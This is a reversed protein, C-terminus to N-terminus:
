APFRIKFATNEGSEVVLKGGLQRTLLQVLRLGLSEVHQIDLGPPLPTGTNCVCLEYEDGDRKMCISVEGGADASFAHKFANTVLENVILGCPIATDIDLAIDEVRDKMTIRNMSYTQQLFQSIHRFFEAVHIHALDQSQYLQQHLRAMFQIRTKSERLATRADENKITASQLDMLSAIVQMNNKVRHHVERLLIDKEALSRKLAEEARKSESIDSIVARCVPTGDVDKAATAEVRAWFPSTDPRLMRCEFVQPADAEFLQKRHLYYIHQDGPVIFQAIPHKVLSIREVGLLKAATLNAETILGAESITFYGVPALDYLDFYRARSADLEVQARRLEENQMGMEIQHVQLEHLTKRMEEPSHATPHKPSRTSKKEARQRLTEPRPTPAPTKKKM